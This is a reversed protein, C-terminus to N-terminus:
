EVPMMERLQDRKTEPLDHVKRINMPRMVDYTGDEFFVPVQTIYDPNPCCGPAFYFGPRNGEKFRVRVGPFAEPSIVMGVQGSFTSVVDDPEFLRRKEM